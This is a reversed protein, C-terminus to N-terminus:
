TQCPAHAASFTVPCRQPRRTHTAVVTYTNDCGCLGAAELEESATADRRPDGDPSADRPGCCHSARARAAGPGSCPAGGHGPICHTCGDTTALPHGSCSHAGDKSGGGHCAGNAHGDNEKSARSANSAGTANADSEITAGNAPDATETSAATANDDHETGAGIAHNDIDNRAGSGHDDTKKSAHVPHDSKDHCHDHKCCRWPTVLSIASSLVRKLCRKQTFHAAVVVTAALLPPTMVGWLLLLSPRALAPRALAATAGALGQFLRALGGEWARSGTYCTNAFVALSVVVVKVRGHSGAFLDCAPQVATWVPRTLTVALTAAAVGPRFAATSCQGAAALLPFCGWSQSLLLAAAAASAAVAKQRVGCCKMGACAVWLLLVVVAMLLGCCTVLLASAAANRALDSLYSWASSPPAACTNTPLLGRAATCCWEFALWAGVHGISSVLVHACEGCLRPVDALAWRWSRRVHSWSRAFCCPPTVCVHMRDWCRTPRRLRERRSHGCTGRDPEATWLLVGLLIAILIALLCESVAVIHM